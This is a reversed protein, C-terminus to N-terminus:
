MRGRNKALKEFDDLTTIKYKVRGTPYVFYNLDKKLIGEKKLLEAYRKVTESHVGLYKAVESPRLLEKDKTKAWNHYFEEVKEDSRSDKKKKYEELLFGEYKKFWGRYYAYKKRVRKLLPLQLNKYKEFIALIDKKRFYYYYRIEPNKQICFFVGKLRENIFHKDIMDLSPNCWVHFIQLSRVSFYLDIMEKNFRTQHERKSINAEDALFFRPLPSDKAIKLGEAISSKDFGILHVSAKDGLCEEEMHLALTSKGIGTDGCIFFLCDDEMDKIHKQMDKIITKLYPDYNEKTYPAIKVM